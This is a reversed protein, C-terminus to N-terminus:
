EGEEPLVLNGDDDLIDGLIDEFCQELAEDQEPTTEMNELEIMKPDDEPLLLVNDPIEIDFIERGCAAMEASRDALAAETEPDLDFSGFADELLYECNQQAALFEPTSTLAEQESPSAADLAAADIGEDTMCTIFEEVAAQENPAMEEDVMSDSDDAAPNIDEEEGLSPLGDEGLEAEAEEDVNGGAGVEITTTEVSAGISDGCAAASLAFAALLGLAAIRKRSPKQSTDKRATTNLTNPIQENSM